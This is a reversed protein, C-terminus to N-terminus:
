GNSPCMSVWQSMSHPLCCKLEVQSICQWDADSCSLFDSSLDVLVYKLTLKWSLLTAITETRNFILLWLPFLSLNWKVDISCTFNEKRMSWKVKSCCYCPFLNTWKIRLLIKLVLSQKKKKWDNERKIREPVLQILQHPLSIWHLKEWSLGAGLKRTMRTLEIISERWCFRRERQAHKWVM